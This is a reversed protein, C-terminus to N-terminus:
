ARPTRPDATSATASRPAAASISGGPAAAPAGAPVDRWRFRRRTEPGIDDPAMVVYGGEIPCQDGSGESTRVAPVRDSVMTRDVDPGAAAVPEDGPTRFDSTGETSAARTFAELLREPTPLLEREEPLPDGLVLRLPRGRRDEANRVYGSQVAARLRRSTASPDLRLIDAVAKVSAEAVGRQIVTDVARVTERITDPVAAGVGSAILDSILDRVGRYDDV